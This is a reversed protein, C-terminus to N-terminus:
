VTETFKILKKKPTMTRALQLAEIIKQREPELYRVKHEEWQKATWDGAVLKLSTKTPVLEAGGCRFAHLNWYITEYARITGCLTLLTEWYPHDKTKDPRPDPNGYQKLNRKYPNLM